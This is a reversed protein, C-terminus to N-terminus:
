AAERRQRPTVPPCEVPNARFHEVCDAWSLGANKAKFAEIQTTSWYGMSQWPREEPPLYNYGPGPAGKADFAHLAELRKGKEIWTHWRQDRDGFFTALQMVTSKGTKDEDDCHERYTEVGLMIEDHTALGEVMIRRWGRYGGLINLGADGRSPYVKRVETFEDPYPPGGKKGASKPYLEARQRKTSGKRKRKGMSGPEPATLTLSDERVHAGAPAPAPASAREQKGSEKGVEEQRIRHRETRSAKDGEAVVPTAPQSQRETRSDSQAVVPLSKLPELNITHTSPKNPRKQSTVIGLERLEKLGRYVSARDISALFAFREPKAWITASDGVHTIMAILTWKAHKSLSSKMIERLAKPQSMGLPGM